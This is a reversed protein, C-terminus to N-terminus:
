AGPAAPARRALESELEGVRRRLAEVSQDRAATAAAAGQLLWAIWADLGDGTTASLRM